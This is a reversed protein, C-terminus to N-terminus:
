DQWNAKMEETMYSARISLSTALLGAASMGFGQSIPLELKVEIEVASEVNFVERFSNLLEIYLDNGDEFSSGDM